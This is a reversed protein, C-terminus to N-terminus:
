EALLQPIVQDMTQRASVTRCVGKKDILFMTPIGRVGYGLTTPNWHHDAAAAADLLEVWPMDNKATYARLPDASYDNSVGVIELGQDHYKAYIAKVRPLEARCPPCWTAWFDVLVVKGKYQDSAFPKGDVTTGTVTLPKGELAKQKVVAEAQAQRQKDTLRLAAAYKGALPDTMKGLDNTLQKTLAPTTASTAMAYTLNALGADDPNAADLAEADTAVSQQVDVRGDAEVWRSQVKTRAARLAVAKDSSAAAADVADVTPKDGFLYLTSRLNDAETDPVPRHVASNIQRLIDLQRYVLPIVQSAAAQRKDPDTVVGGALLKNMSLNTAQWDRVLEAPTRSTAQTTPPAAPRDAASSPRVAVATVLAALSVASFRRVNRM